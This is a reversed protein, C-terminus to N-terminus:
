IPALHKSLHRVEADDMFTAVPACTAKLAASSQELFERIREYYNVGAVMFTDNHGGGSVSFFQRNVSQTARDFLTKMQVPPVLQDADGSIFLIPQKLRQIKVDNDWKIKLVFPKIPTLFPMLIDVMAAISAFTNELIVGKVVDPHRHALAVSVAGGLSRGFAIVPSNKLKPHNAAYDLVTDADANLGDETPSGTSRGYGRYDMMLVNIGIKAYMAAANSLRYGMNGANGHFYILTPVDASNPQLMLWTHIMKGDSTTLMKEEYPICNGDSARCRKGTTSWEGPSRCGSPNDNPDATFGPPNPIYLLKDQNAYLLGLAVVVLGGVVKTAFIGWSILNSFSDSSAM